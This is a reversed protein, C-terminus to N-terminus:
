TSAAMRPQASEKVRVALWHLEAVEGTKGNVAIHLAGSGLVPNMWFLVRDGDVATFIEPM